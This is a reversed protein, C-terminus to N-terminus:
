ARKKAREENNYERYSEEYGLVWGGIVRGILLGYGWSLWRMLWAPGPWALSIQAAHMMLLLQFKSPPISQAVCDDRYSYINRFYRESVGDNNNPSTSATIVLSCPTSCSPDAKFTHRARAPITVTGTSPSATINTSELTFIYRSSSQSSTLLLPLGFLSHHQKPINSPLTTPLFESVGTGIRLHGCFIGRTRFIRSSGHDQRRKSKASAKAAQLIKGAHLELAM